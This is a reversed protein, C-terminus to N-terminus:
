LFCGPCAFGCRCPASQHKRPSPSPLSHLPAIKHPQCLTNQFYISTITVHCRSYALHWQVTFMLVTLKKHQGLRETKSNSFVCLM